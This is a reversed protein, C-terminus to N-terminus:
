PKNTINHKAEFADIIPIFRGPDTTWKDIAEEYRSEEVLAQKYLLETKSKLENEALKKSAQVARYKRWQRIGLVGIFPSFITSFIILLKPDFENTQGSPVASTPKSTPAKTPTNTPSATPQLTPTLTPTSTANLPQSRVTKDVPAFKLNKGDYRWQNRSVDTIIFGNATAVVDLHNDLGSPDYYFADIVDPMASEGKTLVVCIESGAPIHSNNGTVIFSGIIKRTGLVVSPRNPNRDKQIAQLDSQNVRNFSIAHRSSDNETPLYCTGSYFNVEAQQGSPANEISPQYTSGDVDSNASAISPNALYHVFETALGSFIVAFIGIRMLQKSIKSMDVGKLSTNTNMKRVKAQGDYILPIYSTSFNLSHLRTLEEYNKIM